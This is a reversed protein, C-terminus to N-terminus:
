PADGELAVEVGLNREVAREAALHGVAVDQVANGVSKFVTTEAASRRGARGAIVEGIEGRIRDSAFRGEKIPILLDGAEALAAERSDVFVAAREVLDSDIERADPQFAGVANVHAGAAVATGPFVPTASTTATVVVDAGRVALAPDSAVIVTAGRTWPQARAWEAFAATRALSRGVVRIQTLDRVACLAELQTRAQVGAGFIAAIQAERPALLDAALGGAAGTRLATLSAGEIVATPRGDTGDLLVVLAHIIPRGARANGPFVTVLKAGIQREIPGAASHARDVAGPMALLVAQRNPVGVVTRVPVEARGASLAEFADRVAAIASAMDVLRRLDAATIIRVGTANV